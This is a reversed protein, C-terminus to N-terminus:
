YHGFYLESRRVHHASIVIRTANITEPEIGYVQFVEICRYM